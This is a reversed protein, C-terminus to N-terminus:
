DTRKVKFTALPEKVFLEPRKNRFQKVIGLGVGAFYATWVRIQKKEVATLKSPASLKSLLRRMASDSVETGVDKQTLTAGFVAEPAYGYLKESGVGSVFEFVYYDRTFANTSTSTSTSTSTVPKTPSKQQPTTITPKKVSKTDSPQAPRSFKM